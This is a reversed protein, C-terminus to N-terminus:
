SAAVHALRAYEAETWVRLCDRNQCIVKDAGDERTLSRRDCTPCPENLRHVLQDMGTVLQLRKRLKLAEDYLDAHWYASLAETIHELLYKIHADVRRTDPLGDRRYKFPGRQKLDDALNLAWSYVWTQTEDLEDHAPSLSMQDVKTPRRDATSEDNHRTALRGEPLAELYGTLGAIENLADRFKSTCRWCYNGTEAQRPLCGNCHDSCTDPCESTHTCDPTHHGRMLCGRACDIDSHPTM